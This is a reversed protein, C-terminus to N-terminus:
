RRVEGRGLRRQVWEVIRESRFFCAYAIGCLQFPFGIMMLAVVGVHFGWAVLVFAAAFRRNILAVPAGLEMVVTFLALVKFLGDFSMLPGALPSYWDGLLLKRANDIAIHHLLDDSWMWGLGGNRLKAYGALMYTIVVLVCMLRLPWGYETGEGAPQSRMRRADLSWADASAPVVGLILVQLVLMNETHWVFGWCHRYTLTWLLLAAFLPGFIRYRWGLMFPLACAITAVTLVQVVLPDLPSDLLLNVLGVPEFRARDFHAYGLLHGSRILLYIVSYLGVLIRVMALRRGPVRARWYADFRRGLSGLASM